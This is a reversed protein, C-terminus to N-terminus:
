HPLSTSCTPLAPQFVTCSPHQSQAQALWIRTHSLHCSFPKLMPLYPKPSSSWFLCCGQCHGLWAHGDEATGAALDALM